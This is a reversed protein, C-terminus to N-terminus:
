AALTEGLRLMWAEQQRIIETAQEPSAAARYGTLALLRLGETFLWHPSTYLAPGVQSELRFLAEPRVRDPDVLATIPKGGFARLPTCLCLEAIQPLLPLSRQLLDVVPAPARGLPFTRNWARALDDWPGPGYFKRCMEIGLLVRLYGVPHPDGPTFRFIYGEGGALVDHLGAVAAYGSHVFAFTDAAMEPAWSAWVAALASSTSKLSVALLRALEDNWGVLHAVQHGSEHILATPRYLNHATIKIAAAPSETAADWLPLGAKLISAGLGKDLYTLVYPTPIGRADLLNFMSRGALVDCARLIASMYTNTRTNVADAFFDLVTEVRLYSDRFAVLKRRVNMLDAENLAANLATELGAAQALLRDVSGILNQRLAAGMYSELGAWAGPSALREFERLRAAATIWHAVQRHLQLRLAQLAEDM